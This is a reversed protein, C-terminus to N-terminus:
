EKLDRPHAYGIGLAECHKGVQEDDDVVLVSDWDEERIRVLEIRKQMHVPVCAHSGLMVMRDYPVGNLLLWAETLERSCEPRGTMIRVETSDADRPRYLCLERMHEIVVNNPRDAAVQSPKMVKLFDACNVVSHPRRHKPLTITGDVDFIYLHGSM